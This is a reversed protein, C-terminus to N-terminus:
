RILGALLTAGAVFASEGDVERSAQGALDAAAAYLRTLDPDGMIILEAGGSMGLGVRVDAGILLGSVFSPAAEQPMSGLLVAARVSFLEATLASGSLGQRVGNRFADDLGAEGTLMEALMGRERLMAFLEGTMVTRFNAIRGRDIIVWKNHTGPHCVFCTDPILASAMAGVLQVEEGRMVDNRGRDVVSVGPVIAISGREVWCLGGALEPPGAPCGVYPAELWGHTSGVMGCLLLPLNGLRERIASAAVPFEHREVSLVGLGDEYSSVCAGNRDLRYARRNTTGWDVAIFGDAWLMAKAM